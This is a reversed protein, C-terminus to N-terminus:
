RRLVTRNSKTRPEPLIYVTRKIYAFAQISFHLQYTKALGVFHRLISFTGETNFKTGESCSGTM